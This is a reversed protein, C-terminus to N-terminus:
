RLLMDIGAVAEDYDSLLIYQAIKEVQSHFLADTGEMGKQLRNLSHEAKGMDMTELAAKLESLERKLADPSVSISRQCGNLTKEIRELLLAFDELFIPNNRDIYTMDETKGATELRKAYDSLEAAGVSASASKVAHVFTAYLPINGVELSSRIQQLKEKGDELFIGLTNLYRDLTGGTMSVGKRVDIGAIEPLTDEADSLSEKRMEHCQKQKERPIWKQLVATLRSMEIPKPLFDNMNNQLFMERVGSVANATLAIIPLKRYRDGGLDRIRGAAEIGDMGPMMHDMFVMDYNRAKVLDIAEAGSKCTDIRMEFSNMLGEAVKLNTPIDDVILIRASPAIFRAPCKQKYTRNEAKHNLADAISLAHAPLALTIVDQLGIEAGYGIMVILKSELGLRQVIKKAGEYLIYSVFIFPYFSQKLLEFFDSQVTVWCNPVGLADLSSQMSQASLENMEYILSAKTEPASVFAIPAPDSIRQPLLVTFSTGKGYESTFSIEGGM